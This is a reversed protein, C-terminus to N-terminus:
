FVNVLDKLRPLKKDKESIIPEVMGGNQEDPLIDLPWAIGLDPDNWLVGDEHDPAYFEDVMYNFVSNPTLTLYAHAFGKPVFCRRFNEASLLVSYHQGFTPSNKRLDVVVDLVEGASVWVLKAQAKPPRQFHMGRLVGKDVSFAQNAQVCNFDISHNDFFDSRFIEMFYGRADSHVRPELILLGPFNTTIIQM